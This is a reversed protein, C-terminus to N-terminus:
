DNKVINDAMVFLRRCYTDDMHNIGDENRAFLLEIIKSDEM